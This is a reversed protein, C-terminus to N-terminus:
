VGRQKQSCLRRYAFFFFATQLLFTVVWSNPYCWYVTEQTHLAPIQFITAFWFLRFACVGLLTIVSPIMDYGIGRACGGSIEMLGSISYFWCTINLRVSGARIVEQSPSYLSLLPGEFLLIGGCLLIQSVVVCLSATFFVRRIRSINGSGLNQGSFAMASQYMASIAAYAFMEIESAAASGAVVIEGFINVSSQIAVNSLSIVVGQLCAPLGSRLINKLSVANVQLKRPNLSFVDKYKLLCRFVLLASACQSLITALAVGAVDLACVIVFFLNLLVNLVGAITLFLLPSKTNGVARLLAAGFNYLMMAPMGLFYIRLYQTALPLVAAPTKTWVLIQPATLFGIVSLALGSLLSLLIATDATQHLGDRDGAGYLRASTLSAGVSLGLFLNTLLAVVSGTSGVAALANDGAYQGVVIMDATNFFLQLITSCMMPIALKLFNPLVPGDLMNVTQFSSKMEVNVDKRLIDRFPPKAM